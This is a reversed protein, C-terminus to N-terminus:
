FRCEPWRKGCCSMKPPNPNIKYLFCVVLFGVWVLNEAFVRNNWVESLDDIEVQHDLYKRTYLNRVQRIYSTNDPSIQMIQMIQLM